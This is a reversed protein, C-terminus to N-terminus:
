KETQLWYEMQEMLKPIDLPKALHGNMGSERSAVIDAASANASLAIIPITMADERPLKRIARTTDLGNMVPMQIDMLIMDYYGEPMEAFHQLGKRGDAACEVMAGTEGILEMVIERNIENDEVLLIRCGQFSIDTREGYVSDPLSGAHEAPNQLRLIVTVTFRSGKGPESEVSIAGGMMRAINQAISMGLGVGDVHNADAGEAHSFPEFIHSVFEQEM